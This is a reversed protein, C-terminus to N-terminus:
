GGFGHDRAWLVLETQSSVRLKKYINARHTTVTRPAIGLMEAVQVTPLGRTLLRVIEAERGTLGSLGTALSKAPPRMNLARMQERAAALEPRASLSVFVDHARQLQRKAEDVDGLTVLHRAAQRRIRAGDFVIPVREVADAADLITNVLERTTGERQMIAFAEGARALARGIPSELRESDRALRRTYAIAEETEQMWLLCEAVLLLLRYVSWAEYGSRDALALGELGFRLAEDYEKRSLHYRAMGMFARVEAHIDRPRPTTGAGSRQWAERLCAEAREYEGREVYLVGIWVLVRPVLTHQNVRRALAISKEGLAIASDWKGVAALYEVEVEDTRLRLVPSNLEDALRSAEDLYRRTEVGDGTIGSVIALAWAASWALEPEGIELALASVRAAHARVKDLSLKWLHLIMLLRHARAQLGVDGLREALALGATLEESAEAPRGVAELCSGKGLRLEALPSEAGASEAAAIGADYHALADEHRGCWYCALGMNREITSVSAHDGTQEAETRAREWLLLASAYDGSRQRARALDEVLRRAVRRRDTESAAIATWEESSATARELQELAAQLYSAAEINAHKRLARHGAEVLYKVAKGTLDARAARAFHYALHEVQAPNAGFHRELAQAVSAHLLRKNALGLDGYIAERVLPHTFDYIIDAGDAREEILGHERLEDLAATLEDASLGSASRLVDYSVRAGIVAALEAVSRARQKLARMRMVQADRISAPLQLDQVEWGFWTGDREYLQGSRVLSKLTEEIFFPNGRTWGYLLAAFQRIARESAHFTLRLLEDVASRELPELRLPHAAGMAQLSSVTDRLAATTTRDGENYTGLIAVRGSAIQRGLFHLLELSSPDAWQLNEVVLLLPQTAALKLLLQAVHWLRRTKVEAAEGAPPRAAGELGLAPIMAALEGMAGRTLVTLKAPDMGRLLPTLADAFPAYPVSAEVPYARGYAVLWDDRRAHEEAEQALRTKGIGPDGSVFLAGGRSAAANRLTDVVLAIEPARGVLPFRHPFLEFPNM